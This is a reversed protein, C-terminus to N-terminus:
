DNIINTLMDSLHENAFMLNANVDLLKIKSNDLVSYSEINQIISEGISFSLADYNFNESDLFICERLEPSIRDLLSVPFLINKYRIIESYKKEFSEYNNEVIIVPSNKKFNGIKLNITFLGDREIDALQGHFLKKLYLKVFIDQGFLSESSNQKMTIVNIDSSISELIKKLQEPYKTFPLFLIKSNEMETANNCEIGYSKTVKDFVTKEVILLKAIAEDYFEESSLRKAEILASEAKSLDLGTYEVIKLLSDIYDFEKRVYDPIDPELEELVGEEPLIETPSIEIFMLRSLIFLGFFMIFGISILSLVSVAFFLNISPSSLFVVLPFLAVLIAILLLFALFIFVTRNKENYSM